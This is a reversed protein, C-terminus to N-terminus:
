QHDLRKAKQTTWQKNGPLFYHITSLRPQTSTNTCQFCAAQDTAELIIGQCPVYEDENLKKKRIRMNNEQGYEHHAKRRSQKKKM